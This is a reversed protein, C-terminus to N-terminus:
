QNSIPRFRTGGNRTFLGKERPTLRNFRVRFFNQDLRDIVIPTAEKVTAVCLNNYPSFIAFIKIGDLNNTLFSKVRNPTGSM